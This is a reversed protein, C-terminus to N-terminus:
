NNEDAERIWLLCKEAQIFTDEFIANKYKEENYQKVEKKQEPTLKKYQKIFEKKTLM